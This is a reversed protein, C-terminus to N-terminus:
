PRLSGNQVTGYDLATKPSKPSSHVAMAIAM